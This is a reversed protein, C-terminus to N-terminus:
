YGKKFRDALKDLKNEAREEVISDLNAPRRGNNEKIIQDMTSKRIKAADNFARLNQIVKEKGEDTMSLTPVTQLFIRVDNDTLRNGFVAKAEKIMDTSLKRFEQTEPNQLFHLDIGFGFIGKSLTDFLNNYFPGRLRGSKLLEEMRNLRMENGKAAKSDNTIEKYYAETEKNIQHQEVQDLKKKAFGLKALELANKANLRAKPQQAQNVQSEPSIQPQSSLKQEFFQREQPSLSKAEDSKLFEPIYKLVEQEESSQQPQAASQQQMQPQQDNGLLGSLAQAFAEEQPAQMKNKVVQELIKPDLLALGHADKASLEPLLSQLGQATRQQMQKQQIQSVKHSVLGQLASSLANVASGGLSQNRNSDNIVQVM